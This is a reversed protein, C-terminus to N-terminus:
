PTRWDHVAVVRGEWHQWSRALKGPWPGGERREFVVTGDYRGRASKLLEAGMTSVDGHEKALIYDYTTNRPDEGQNAILSERGVPGKEVVLPRDFQYTRGDFAFQVPNGTQFLVGDRVFTQDLPVVRLLGYLRALRWNVMRYPRDETKYFSRNQDWQNRWERPLDNMTFTWSDRGKLVGSPLVAVRYWRGGNQYVAAARHRGEHGSVTGTEMDVNILPHIGGRWEGTYRELPASQAAHQLSYEPSLNTLTLFLAPHMDVIGVAKRDIANRFEPWEIPFLLRDGVEQRLAEYNRGLMLLPVLLSEATAGFDREADDSFAARSGQVMQAVSGYRQPLYGVTRGSVDGSRQPMRFALRGNVFQSMQGYFWHSVQGSPTGTVLGEYIVALAIVSRHAANEWQLTHTRSPRATAADQLDEWVGTLRRLMWCALSEGGIGRQSRAAYIRQASRLFVGNLVRQGRGKLVLKRMIQQFAAVFPNEYNRTPWLCGSAYRIAPMAWEIAYALALFRLRPNIGRWDITTKLEVPYSQQLPIVPLVRRPASELSERVQQYSVAGTTGARLNPNASSITVPEAIEFFNSGDRSLEPYRFRDIRWGEAIPVAGDHSVHAWPFEDLFTEVLGAHGLVPLLRKGATIWDAYLGDKIGHLLSWGVEALKRDSSPEDDMGEQTALRVLWHDDAGRGFLKYLAEGVSDEDPILKSPDVGVVRWVYGYRDWRARPLTRDVGDSRRSGAFDGGLAYIIAYALDTTLYVRGPLPVSGPPNDQAVNGPRLVGGRAIAEGNRSSGHWYVAGPETHVGSVDGVEITTPPIEIAASPIPDRSVVSSVMVFARQWENEEPWGVRDLYEHFEDGPFAYVGHEEVLEDVADADREAEPTLVGLERLLAVHSDRDIQNGLVPEQLAIWDPELAAVPVCVSLVVAREDGVQEATEEAYYGAIARDGTLYVGSRLGGTMIDDLISQATGHYLTISGRVSPSGVLGGRKGGGEYRGVLKATTGGGRRVVDGVPWYTDVVEFGHGEYFAILDDRYGPEPVAIGWTAKVGQRDLEGLISRLMKSGVGRGRMGEEVEMGTLYAAPSGEERVKNALDFWEDKDLFAALAAPSGFVAEAYTDDVGEVIVYVTGIGQPSSPREVQPVYQTASLFPPSGVSGGREGGGEYRGVLRIAAPNYFVTGGMSNFDRVGAIGVAVAKEYLWEDWMRNSLGTAVWVDWDAPNQLDLIRFGPQIEFVLVAGAEEDDVLEPEEATYFGPGFHGAGMQPRVGGRISQAGSASTGHYVLAGPATPDPRPQKVAMGGEVQREPDLLVIESTAPYKGTQVTVVADYGAKLLEQRLQDGRERAAKESRDQPEEGSGFLGHLRAKWSHVDYGLDGKTNHVVVLPHKVSAPGKVWGPLAQAVPLTDHVVYLGAPELHQQFQEFLYPARETNHLFRFTVPVGTEFRVGAEDITTTGLESM